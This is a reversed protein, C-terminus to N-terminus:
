HTRWRPGPRTSSKRYAKDLLRRQAGTRRRARRGSWGTRSGRLPLGSRQAGATEQVLLVPRHLGGARKAPGTCDGRENRLAPVRPQASPGLMRPGRSLGCPSTAGFPCIGSMGCPGQLNREYRLATVPKAHREGAFRAKSAGNGTRRALARCTTCAPVPSLAVARLALPFPYPSSSSIRALTFGRSALAPGQCPAPAFAGGIPLM